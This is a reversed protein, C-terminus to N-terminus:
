FNNPHFTPFTIGSYFTIPLAFISRLQQITLKAKFDGNDRVNKEERTIHFAHAHMTHVVSVAHRARHRPHECRKINHAHLTHVHMSKSLQIYCKLAVCANLNTPAAFISLSTRTYKPTQILPGYPPPDILFGSTSFRIDFHFRYQNNRRFYKHLCQFVTLNQALAGILTMFHHRLNEKM